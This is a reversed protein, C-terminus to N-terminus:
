KTDSTYKGLIAKMDDVSGAMVKLKSDGTVIRQNIWDPGVTQKFVWWQKRSDGKFDLRTITKFDKINYEKKILNELNARDVDSFKANPSVEWLNLGVKKIGDPPSMFSVLVLSSLCVILIALKKM